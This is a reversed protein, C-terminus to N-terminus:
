RVTRSLHHNEASLGCYRGHRGADPESRLQSVGFQDGQHHQLRQQSEGGLGPPQAVGASMQAM